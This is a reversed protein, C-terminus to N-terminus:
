ADRREALVEEAWNRLWDPPDFLGLAGRIPMPCIAPVVDRLEFCFSPGGDWCNAWDSKCERAPVCGTMTAIGIVHGRRDKFTKPDWGHEVWDAQEERDKAVLEDLAKACHILVPGTYTTRWTRNEVDKGGHVIAWAWPDRISLVKM